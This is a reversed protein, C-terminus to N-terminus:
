SDEEDDDGNEIVSGNFGSALGDYLLGNYESECRLYPVGEKYYVTYNYEQSDDETTIYVNGIQGGKFEGILQAALCGIGNAHTKATQGSIGNIITRANLFDALEQGIGSPYGDFQRYLTVLTKGNENKITTTSRTGM